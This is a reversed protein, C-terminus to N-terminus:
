ELRVLTTGRVPLHLLVSRSRAAAVSQVDNRHTDHYLLLSPGASTALTQVLEDPGAAHRTPIGTRAVYFREAPLLWYGILPTGADHARLVGCLEGFEQRRALDHMDPYFSRWAAPVGQAILVLGAIAGALPKPAPQELRSLVARLLWAALILAPVLSPSIYWDRKTQAVSFLLFPILWWLVLLQLLSRFETTLRLQACLNLRGRLAVAGVSLGLLLPWTDTVLQAVYHLPSHGGGDVEAQVRGAFDIEWLRQLYGPQQRERAVCFAVYPLAGVLLLLATSCMGRWRRQLALWLLLAPAIQLAASGKSLLAAAWPLWLWIRVAFRPSAACLITLTLFLTLVPEIEAGRAGHQYVLLWDTSLLFACTFAVAANFRKCCWGAVIGVLAIHCLAPGIRAAFETPGLAKFCAAILWLQLPPKTATSTLQGDDLYTLWANDRAIHLALRARLAEDWDALPAVALNCLTLVAALATALGIVIAPALLVPRPALAVHDAPTSM